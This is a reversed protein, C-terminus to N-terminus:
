GKRYIYIYVYIYHICCAYAHLEQYGSTYLISCSSMDSIVIHLDLDDDRILQSISSPSLKVLLACTFVDICTHRLHIASNGQRRGPWNIIGWHATPLPAARAACYNASALRASCGAHQRATGGTTVYTLPGIPLPHRGGHSGSGDGCRYQKWIWSTRGRNYM